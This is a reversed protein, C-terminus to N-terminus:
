SDALVTLLVVACTAPASPLGTQSISGCFMPRNQYQCVSRSSVSHYGCTRTIRCVSEPSHLSTTPRTAVASAANGATSVGAATFFARGGPLFFAPGAPYNVLGPSRVREARLCDAGHARGGLMARAPTIQEVQVAPDGKPGSNGGDECFLLGGRPSVCINDPSNGILIDNSVFIAAEPADPANHVNVFAVRGKLSPHGDAYAAERRDAVGDKNDDFYAWYTKDGTFNM